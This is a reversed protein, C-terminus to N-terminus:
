QMSFDDLLEKVKYQVPTPLDNIGVRRNNREIIGMDCTTGHYICVGNPSNPNNSMTYVHGEVIITYKDLYNVRENSNYVKIDIAKKTVGEISLEM